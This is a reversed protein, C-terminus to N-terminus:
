MMTTPTLEWLSLQKAVSLPMLNINAGFDCLTKGMDAHGIKCPITFSGPDQMKEPLSKQIVVSCTATLSAIGEEAIKRKRRLIEKIFKAYHPMQALAESFPINIEIKKFMNLFRSFQEELKAKQLRQPFPVQPNYAKVEEKKGLNEKEVQQELQMKVTKEEETTESSHKKFEKGTEAYKEEETDKKEVRKEELERGSRLTVTM